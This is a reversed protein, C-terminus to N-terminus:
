LVAEHTIKGHLKTKFNDDVLLEENLWLYDFSLMAKSRWKKIHRQLTRFQGRQYQDPYRYQLEDFISKSTRNTHEELWSCIKDWVKEFPDKRTRWTHPAKLKNTRKYKRKEHKLSEKLCDTAIAGLNMNNSSSCLKSNFTVSVINERKEPIGTVAHKWLADQM